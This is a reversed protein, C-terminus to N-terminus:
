TPQTPCIIASAESRYYVAQYKEKITFSLFCTLPTNLLVFASVM